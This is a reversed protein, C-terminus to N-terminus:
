NCSKVEFCESVCQGHFHLRHSISEFSFSVGLGLCNVLYPRFFELIEVPQHNRIISRHNNKSFVKVGKEDGQTRPYM